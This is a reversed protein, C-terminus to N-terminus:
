GWLARMLESRDRLEDLTGVDVIRGEDLLIIRDALRLAPRRHSVALCTRRRDGLLREWVLAETHVDLASSLDDVVLLDAGSLFTRAAAARQLQGGSLKVGRTGVMTRLGHDLEDIDADLAAAHVAAAIEADGREWGLTLNDVLSASILRPSQPTYAARPPALGEPGVPTDNWYVVGAQAPLLGVVTKLLTTKGAGLRGTVVTFSGAPLEFSVDVVGAGTEHHLHTLGEVRLLRLPDATPGSPLPEIPAELDLPDGAVLGADDPHQLLRDIREISVVTRAHQAIMDGGWSLYSTLRPIYVVFTALAGVSLAGSRLSAAGVVLVLGTALSAMNQNLSRLLEAVATDRLAARHRTRNLVDLHDLMHRGSGTVKVPLIATFLDGLFGTVQETATRMAERRRRVAGASARTVWGAVLMPVSVAATLLPDIWLMVGIAGVLYLLLGAADQWNEVYEALEEVDERFTTVASGTSVPPRGAGPATLLRRLMNRRLLLVWRHWYVSYKWVGLQFIAVRTVLAVGFFVLGRRTAGPDGSAIADFVLGTAVGFVIPISHFATWIAINLWWLARWPRTAAALVNWPTM